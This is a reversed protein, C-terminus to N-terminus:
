LHKQAWAIIEMVSDHRNKTSRLMIRFINCLKYVQLDNCETNMYIKFLM